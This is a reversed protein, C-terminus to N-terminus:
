KKRKKEYKQTKKFLNYLYYIKIIRSLSIKRKKVKWLGGALSSKSM